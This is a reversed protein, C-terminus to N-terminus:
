PKTFQFSIGARDISLESAPRLHDSPYFFRNIKGTTKLLEWEENELFNRTSIVDGNYFYNISAMDHTWSSVTM